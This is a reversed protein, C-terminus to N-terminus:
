SFASPPLYSHEKIVQNLYGSWGGFPQICVYLYGHTVQHNFKQSSIDETHLIQPKVQKGGSSKLPGRLVGSIDTKVHSQLAECCYNQSYIEVKTNTVSSNFSRGLTM